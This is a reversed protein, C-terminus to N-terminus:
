YYVLGLLQKISKCEAQRARKDKAAFLKEIARNLDESNVRELGCYVQAFERIRTETEETQSQVYLEINTAIETKQNTFPLRKFRVLDDSEEVPQAKEQVKATVPQTKEQVKVTTQATTVPNVSDWLYWALGAGVVLTAGAASKWGFWGSNQDADMACAPAAIGALLVLLLANTKIRSVM